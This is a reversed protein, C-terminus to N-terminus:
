SNSLKHKQITHTYVCQLFYPSPYICWWVEDWCQSAWCLSVSEWSLLSFYTVWKLVFALSNLGLVQSVRISKCPKWCVWKVRVGPEFWVWSEVRAKSHEWDANRYVLLLSDSISIFLVIANIVVDFIIFYKPIFKVLSTFTRYM